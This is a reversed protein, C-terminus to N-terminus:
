QTSFGESCIRAGVQRLATDDDPHISGDPLPGTNLLLNCGDTQANSLTEWIEEFWKLAAKRLDLQFLDGYNSLYRPVPM